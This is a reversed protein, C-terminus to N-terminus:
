RSRVTIQTLNNSCIIGRAVHSSDRLVAHSSGWLRVWAEGRVIVRAKEFDIRLSLPNFQEGGEIYITGEFDPKIKDLQKQTKVIIDKM